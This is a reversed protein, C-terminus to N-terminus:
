YDAKRDPPDRKRDTRRSAVEEQEEISALADILSWGMPRKILGAFM